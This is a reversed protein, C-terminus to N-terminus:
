PGQMESEKVKSFIELLEAIDGSGDIRHENQVIFVPVGSKVEEKNRRAEEDVVAPSADLWGDVEDGSVGADAALEKLVDPDSIDMEREHYGEFIKEVFANTTATDAGKEGETMQCYYVVRHADRTSGIKGGAKFIIGMSRGIQNMRYFLATRQEPTM